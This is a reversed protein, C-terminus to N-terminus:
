SAGSHGHEFRASRAAMYAQRVEPSCPRDSVCFGDSWGDCIYANFNWVSTHRTPEPAVRIGWWESYALFRNPGNFEGPEAESPVGFVASRTYLGINLEPFQANVITNNYVITHHSVNDTVTPNPINGLLLLRVGHANGPLGYYPVCGYHMKVIDEFDSFGSKVEAWCNEGPLWFDPLYNRRDHEPGVEFGELEYEWQIGLQDFFVAWRAELRSRFHCGAYRTPIPRVDLM